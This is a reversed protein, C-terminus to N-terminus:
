YFVAINCTLLKKRPCVMDYYDSGVISEFFKYEKLNVCLIHYENDHGRRLLGSVKAM